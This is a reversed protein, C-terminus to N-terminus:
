AHSVEVVARQELLRLAQNANGMSVSRIAEHRLTELHVIMRSAADMISATEPYVNAVQNLLGRVDRSTVQAGTTRPVVDGILATIQQISHCEAM